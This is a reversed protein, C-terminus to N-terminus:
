ESWQSGCQNRWNKREAPFEKQTASTCRLSTLEEEPSQHRFSGVNKEFVRRNPTVCKEVVKRAHRTLSNAALGVGDALATMTQEVERASLAFRYAPFHPGQAM